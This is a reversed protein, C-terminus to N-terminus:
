QRVAGPQQQVTAQRPPETRKPDPGALGQAGGPRGHARRAPVPTALQGVEGVRPGAVDPHPQLGQVIYEGRPAIGSGAVRPCTMAVSFGLVTSLGIEARSASSVARNSAAVEAVIPNGAPLSMSQDGSAGMKLRPRSLLRPSGYMSPRYGNCTLSKSRSATSRSASRKRAGGSSRHPYTVPPAVSPVMYPSHSARRTYGRPTTYWLVADCGLTALAMSTSPMSDTTSRVSSFPSSSYWSRASWTPRNRSRGATTTALTPVVIVSLVSSTRWIRRTSSATG